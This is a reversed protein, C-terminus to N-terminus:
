TPNRIRSVGQMLWKMWRSINAASIPYFRHWYITSTGTSRSQLSRIKSHLANMDHAMTDFRGDIEVLKAETRTALQNLTSSTNATDAKISLLPSNTDGDFNTLRTAVNPAPVLMRSSNNDMSSSSRSLM